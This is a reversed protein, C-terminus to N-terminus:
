KEPIVSILVARVLRRYKYSATKVMGCETVFQAKESPPFRLKHGHTNYLTKALLLCLGTINKMSSPPLFIIPYYKGIKRCKIFLSRGMRMSIYRKIWNCGKSTQSHAATKASFRIEAIPQIFRAQSTVLM